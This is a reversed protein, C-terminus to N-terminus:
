LMTYHSVTTYFVYVYQVYLTCVYTPIHTHIHINIRIYTYMYLIHCTVSTYVYTHSHSSLLSTCKHPMYCKRTFYGAGEQTHFHYETIEAIAWMNETVLSLCRSHCATCIHAHVTCIHVYKHTHLTEPIHVYVLFWYM